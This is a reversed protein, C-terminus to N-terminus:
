YVIKHQLSLDASPDLVPFWGGTRSEAWDGNIYMRYRKM